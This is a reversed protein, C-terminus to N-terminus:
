PMLSIGQKILLQPINLDQYTFKKFAKMAGEAGGAYVTTYVILM